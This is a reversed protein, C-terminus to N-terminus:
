DDQQSNPFFSGVATLDQKNTKTEQPESDFSSNPSAPQSIPPTPTSVSITPETKAQATKIQDTKPEAAKKKRRPKRPSNTKAKNAKNAKTTNADRRAKAMEDLSIIGEQFEELTAALKANPLTDTVWGLTRIEWRQYDDTYIILEDRREGSELNLTAGRLLVADFEAAALAEDYAKLFAAHHRHDLGAIVDSLRKVTKGQMEFTTM